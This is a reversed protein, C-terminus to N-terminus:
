LSMKRKRIVLQLRTSTSGRSSPLLRDSMTGHKLKPKQPHTVLLRHSPFPKSPSNPDSLDNHQPGDFRGEGKKHTMVTLFLVCDTKGKEMATFLTKKFYFSEENWGAPLAM